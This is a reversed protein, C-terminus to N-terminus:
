FPMDVDVFFGVDERSAGVDIRFFDSHNWAVRLGGGYSARWGTFGFDVKDWVRGAGLMPALQLGFHEKAIHFKWFMWRLETNALAMVPGIFRANRYGHLTYDGGIADLDRDTGGLTGQAWFPAGATQMSYVIRSALVLDTFKPFPSWYFRWTTTFRVYDALSGFGRASWELVADAFVGEDPDPEFDRTDYAIGVKMYDNWGGNCGTVRNAACDMGLLTPGHMAPVDKGMTDKGNTQTGDYTHVGVYQVVAGYEVRVLGGLLSRELTLSGWPKEYTYHNYLPSAVGNQLASAAATQEDFTGHTQGQFELPGMTREGAGFYNANINREFWAQVRLRYPSDGVYIGDYQLSHQQFGLTSFVAQAYFRHRYPTVAFLPDKKTGDMAYYGVAGLLLGVNTDYGIAPLGEIHNGERHSDEMRRKNRAFNPVEPPPEALATTISGALLLM